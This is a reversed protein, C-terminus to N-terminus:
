TGNIHREIEELVQLLEEFAPPKALHKGAAAPVKVTRPGSFPSGFIAPRFHSM